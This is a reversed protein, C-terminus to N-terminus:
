LLDVWLSSDSFVCVQHTTVLCQISHQALTAGVILEGDELGSYDLYAACSSELLSQYSLTREDIQTLDITVVARDMCLVMWSEPQNPLSVSRLM